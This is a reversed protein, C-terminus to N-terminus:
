SAAVTKKKKSAAPKAGAAAAPRQILKVARSKNRAAFNRGIIGAKLARDLKSQFRPLLAIAEQSNGAKALQRIERQLKKYAATTSRNRQRRRLAVRAQKAASRTNAM